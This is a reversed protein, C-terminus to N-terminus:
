AWAAAVVEVMLRDLSEARMEASSRLRTAADTANLLESELWERVAAQLVVREGEGAMAKAAELEAIMGREHDSVWPAALLATPPHSGAHRIWRCALLPRLVSFLKKLRVPDAGLHEAHVGQAMRLYHHYAAPAKFAAVLAPPPAIAVLEEISQAFVGRVDTDSADNATGYARSGSVCEFVIRHREARLLTDLIM